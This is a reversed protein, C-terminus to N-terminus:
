KLYGTKNFFEDLEVRAIATEPDSTKLQWEIKESTVGDVVWLLTPSYSVDYKETLPQRKEKELLADPLEEDLNVIYLNDKLNPNDVLLQELYNEQFNLSDGCNTIWGFYLIGSEKNALFEDVEELSLTQLSHVMPTEKVEREIVPEEKQQCAVLVLLLLILGLKKM